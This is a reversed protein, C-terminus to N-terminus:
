TKRQTAATRIPAFVCREALCISASLAAASIFAGFSSLRLAPFLVHEGNLSTHLYDAWGDMQMSQNLPITHFFYLSPPLLSHFSRSDCMVRTPVKLLEIQITVRYLRAELRWKTALNGGSETWVFVEATGNLGYYIVDM